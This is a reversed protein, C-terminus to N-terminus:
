GPGLAVAGRTPPAETRGVVGGGQTGTQGGRGYPQAEAQGAQLGAVAVIQLHVAGLQLMQVGKQGQGRIHRAAGRAVLLYLGAILLWVRAPWDGEAGKDDGQAAPSRGSSVIKQAHAVGAGNHHAGIQPGLLPRALRRFQSLVKKPTIKPTNIAM